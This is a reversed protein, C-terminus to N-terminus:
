EIMCVDDGNMFAMLGGSWGRIAVPTRAGGWLVPQELVGGRERRILNRRTLVAFEGVSTARWGGGEGLPRLPGTEKGKESISLLSEEQTRNDRLVVAVRGRGAYAASTAKYGTPATWSVVVNAPSVLTLRYADLIGIGEVGSWSSIPSGHTTLKALGNGRVVWSADIGVLVPESSALFTEIQLVADVLFGSWREHIRRNRPSVEWVAARCRGTCHSEEVFVFTADENSVAAGSIKWDVKPGPAKIDFASPEASEQAARSVRLSGASFGYFWLDGDSVTPYGLARADRCNADVSRPSPQSQACAAQSSILPLLALLSAMTPLQLGM